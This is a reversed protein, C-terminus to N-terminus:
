FFLLVTKSGSKSRLLHMTGSVDLARTLGGEVTVGRLFRKSSTKAEARHVKDYKPLDSCFLPRILNVINPIPPHTNLKKYLDYPWKQKLVCVSLQLFHIMFSNSSHDSHSILRM